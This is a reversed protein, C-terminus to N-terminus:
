LMGERQVQREGKRKEPDRVKQVEGGRWIYM